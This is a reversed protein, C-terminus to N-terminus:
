YHPGCSGNNLTIKKRLFIVYKKYNLTINFHQITSIQIWLNNKIWNHSISRHSQSFNFEIYVPFFGQLGFRRFDLLNRRTLLGLGGKYLLAWYRPWPPFFFQKSVYPHSLRQSLWSYCRSNFILWTLYKEGFPASDTTGHSEHLSERWYSYIPPWCIYSVWLGHIDIV